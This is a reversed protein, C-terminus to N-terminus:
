FAMSMKSWSWGNIVITVKLKGLKYWCAFLWNIGKIGEQSLALKLTRQGSQGCGYKVRVM